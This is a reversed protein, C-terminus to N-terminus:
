FAPLWNARQFWCDKSNGKNEFYSAQNIEFKFVEKFILAKCNLRTQFSTAAVDM